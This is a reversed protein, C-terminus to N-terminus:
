SSPCTLRLLCYLGLDTQEEVTQDPDIKIAMGEADKPGM